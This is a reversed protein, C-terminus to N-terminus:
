EQHHQQQLVTYDQKLAQYKKKLKKLKKKTKKYKQQYEQTLDITATSATSITGKQGTQQVRKSSSLSNTTSQPKYFIKSLFLVLSTTLSKGV